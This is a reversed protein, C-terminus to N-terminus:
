VLQGGDAGGDAAAGDGPGMGAVDVQTGVLDLDGAGDFVGDEVMTAEGEDDDQGALGALVFELGMEEGPQEEAVGTGAPADDGDGGGEFGLGLEAHITDFDERLAQM